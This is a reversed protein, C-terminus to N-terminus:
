LQLRSRAIPYTVALQLTHIKDPIEHGGESSVPVIVDPAIDLLLM